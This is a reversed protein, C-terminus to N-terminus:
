SLATHYHIANSTTYITLLKWKYTQWRCRTPQYFSFFFFRPQYFKRFFRRSWCNWRANEPIHGKSNSLYIKLINVNKLVYVVTQAKMIIWMYKSLFLFLHIDLRVEIYKLSLVMNSLFKCNIIFYSKAKYDIFKKFFVRTVTGYNSCFDSVIGKIVLYYHKM